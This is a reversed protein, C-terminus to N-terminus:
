HSVVSTTTPLCDAYIHVAGDKIIPMNLWVDSVSPCAASLRRDPHDTSAWRGRQIIAITVCPVRIVPGGLCVFVLDINCLLWYRFHRLSSRSSIVADRIRAKWSLQNHVHILVFYIHWYTIFDVTYTSYSCILAAGIVSSIHCGANGSVSVKIKSWLIERGTVASTLLSEEIFMFTLRKARM